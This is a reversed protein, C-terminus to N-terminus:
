PRTQSVGYGDVTELGAGADTAFIGLAGLGLASFLFFCLLATKMPIM